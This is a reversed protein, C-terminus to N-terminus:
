ERSFASADMFPVPLGIKSPCEDAIIDVLAELHAVIIVSQHWELKWLGCYKWFASKLDHLLM